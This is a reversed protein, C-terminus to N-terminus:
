FVAIISTYNVCPVYRFLLMQCAKVQIGTYLWLHVLACDGPIRHEEITAEKDLYSKKKTDMTKMRKLMVYTWDCYTSKKAKSGRM